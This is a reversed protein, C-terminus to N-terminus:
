EEEFVVKTIAQYSLSSGLRYGLIEAVIEKDDNTMNLASINENISSLLKEFDDDIDIMINIVANEIRSM